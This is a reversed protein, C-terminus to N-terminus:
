SSQSRGETYLAMLACASNTINFPSAEVVAFCAKKDTTPEGLLQLAREAWSEPSRSLPLRHVLGAVLNVEPPLVDSILSRLGVAQAEIVVLGLGEFLSPFLFLDAARMLQPVDDRSGLFYIRESLGLERAKDQLAPTLPGSGAMVFLADGNRRQIGAFIEMLFFLNKQENHRGVHLIVKARDPWKLSQRIAQREANAAARYDACPIGCVCVLNRMRGKLGGLYAEIAAPSTGVCDGGDWVSLRRLLRGALHRMVPRREQFVFRTNHVHCIRTQVGALRAVPLILGSLYDAHCHVVDYKGRRLLKGLRWVFSPLNRWVLQCHHVPCGMSELKGQYYGGTNLLTLFESQVDDGHQRQLEATLNVLWKEIGGQGLSSLVHLVKLPM